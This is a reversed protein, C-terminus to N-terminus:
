FQRLGPYQLPEGPSKRWFPLAAPQICCSAQSERRPPSRSVYYQNGQRQQPQPLTWCYGPGTTSRQISWSLFYMCPWPFRQQFRWIRTTVGCSSCNLSSASLYIRCLASSNELKGRNLTLLFSSYSGYFFPFHCFTYCVHVRDDIDGGWHSVLAWPMKKQSTLKPVWIQVRM